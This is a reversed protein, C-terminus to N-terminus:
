LKVFSREIIRPLTVLETLWNRTKLNELVTHDIHEHLDLLRFRHRCHRRELKVKGTRFAHRRYRRALCLYRARGPKDALVSNLRVAADANRLFESNAM